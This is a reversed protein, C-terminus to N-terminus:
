ELSQTITKVMVRLNSKHKIQWKYSNLQQTTLQSKLAGLQKIFNIYPVCLINKQRLAYIVHKLVELRIFLLSCRQSAQVVSLATKWYLRVVRKPQILLVLKTLYRTKILHSSLHSVYSRTLMKWYWYRITIIFRMLVYDLKLVSVPITM